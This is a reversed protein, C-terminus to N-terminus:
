QAFKESPIVLVLLLNLFVLFLFLFLLQHLLTNHPPFWASMDAKGPLKCALLCFRLLAIIDTICLHQIKKECLFNETFKNRAHLNLFFIFVPFMMQKPAKSM